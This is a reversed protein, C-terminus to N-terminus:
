RPSPPRSSLVACTAAALALALLLLGPVLHLWPRSAGEGRRPEVGFGALLALALTTLLSFKVAGRLPGM